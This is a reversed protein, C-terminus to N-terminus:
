KATQLAQVMNWISQIQKGSREAFHEDTYGWWDWCGYANTFLTRTTQPYLIVINNSEAWRNLGTNEVYQTGITEANQNCAHFSIHLKCTDGKACAKPIYIYGQQALGSKELNYLSQDFQQPTATSVSPEVLNPYLHQLMAGAGDYNCKNIFPSESNACPVGSNLTPFGHGAAINNIYVINKESVYQQYFAVLAETVSKDVLHDKTGHFIWIRDNQLEKLDAIKQHQANAQAIALLAKVPPNSNEKDLCQKAATLLSDESCFYPGAAFIGAGNIKEAHALHIQNAMYGGSSVGSVTIHDELNIKPLADAAYTTKLCSLGLIIFLIQHYLKKNDM